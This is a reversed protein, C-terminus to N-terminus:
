HNRGLVVTGGSHRALISGGTGHAVALNCDPVQNESREHRLQRTSEFLLFIGRGAPHNSSLGGGDTNIPLRGDINLTGNEVFSGGEGKECFGLDEIGCMVTITYSDYIMAMDMDEPTLEAEAFARGSSQAAAIFTIDRNGIGPHAVAQGTGLVYVPDHKLDKAREASTVIVAGGGDSIICCDLLHLPDSVMRSNIVDEVTIPDRFVAFPNTSAHKRTAVAIEALQESTTGYQAMHRRAVMAYSGVTTTGYPAEFSDPIFPVTRSTTGRTGTNRQESRATQGHTILAVECHGAAIAAAAHAIFFEYSGGGMQTTDMVKPYLNMYEALTWGAHSFLGDVDKITLGADDLARRASDAQISLYSAFPDFRSEYEHIGVIATKGRISM